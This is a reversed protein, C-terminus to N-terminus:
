ARCEQIFEAWARRLADKSVEPAGEKELHELWRELSSGRPKDPDRVADCAFDGVSDYRATQKRLWANFTIRRVPRELPRQRQQKEEQM